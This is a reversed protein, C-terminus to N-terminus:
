AAKTPAPTKEASTNRAESAGAPVPQGPARDGQLEAWPGEAVTSLVVAGLRSASKDGALSMQM